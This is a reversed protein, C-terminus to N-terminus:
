CIGIKKFELDEVMHSFDMLKVSSVLRFCGPLNEIRRLAWVHCSSSSIPFMFLEDGAAVVKDSVGALRGSATTFIQTPPFARLVKLYPLCDDRECGKSSQEERSSMLSLYAAHLVDHNVGYRLLTGTNFSISLSFAKDDIMYESQDSDTSTIASTSIIATRLSDILRYVEALNTLPGPSSEDPGAAAQMPNDAGSPIANITDLRGAKVWLVCEGAAMRQVTADTRYSRSVAGIRCMTPRSCRPSSWDPVWSPLSPYTPSPGWGHWLFICHGRQVLAESFDTYVDEVTDSYDVTILESGGKIMGLQSYVFDRPESSELYQGFLFGSLTGKNMMYDELSWPGPGYRYRLIYHPVYDHTHKALVTTFGEYCRGLRSASLVQNGCIYFVRANMVVEQRVWVRTFWPRQFLKATGERLFIDALESDSDTAGKIRKMSEANGVFSVLRQITLDSDDAAPGLWALVVAASRYVEGMRRVQFSKEVDDRQNICLADVWLIITKDDEALHRLAIDLSQTIELRKDAVLLSTTPLSADGWAYSLAVYPPARNVPFALLECRVISDAGVVPWCRRPLLHVLRITSDAPRLPRYLYPKPTLKEPVRPRTQTFRLTLSSRYENAARHSMGFHGPFPNGCICARLRKRAFSLAGSHDEGKGERPARQM